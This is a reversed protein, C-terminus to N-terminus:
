SNKRKTKIAISNFMERFKFFRNKKHPTQLSNRDFFKILERIEDRKSVRWAWQNQANKTYTTKHNIHGGFVNRIKLLVDKDIEALGIGIEFAYHKQIKGNKQKYRVLHVNFYGEGDFFGLFWNKFTKPNM